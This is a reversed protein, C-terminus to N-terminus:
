DRRAMFSFGVGALGILLLIISFVLGATESPGPSEPVLSTSLEISTSSSASTDMIPEGNIVAFISYNHQGEVIPIHTYTLESTTDIVEGNYVIAWDESQGKWTLIVDSGDLKAKVDIAKPPATGIFSDSAEDFAGLDDFVKVSLDLESPMTTTYTMGQHVPTGDISWIAKVVAGDIDTSSMASFTVSAGKILSEPSSISAEPATNTITFEVVM